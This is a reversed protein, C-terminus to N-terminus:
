EYRLAEIPDMRAAKRAPYYGFFVGVAMSFGVAMLIASVSPRAPFGLLSAGLGGLGMGVGIGILGGILCIVVAEIIFQVMIARQTAGLAMRTGIERTRETISVLMINMVGIGGVLLSIAAIASVAIKVTNLMETYTEAMSSLSFATIEFNPNRRYYSNLFAQVDAAFRDPNTVEPTAMITVGGYGKQGRERNIVEAPVYVDTVTDADKGMSFNMMNMEYKYVGVITVALTTNGARLTLQKGIPSQKGYLNAAFKDSVVAVKRCHAEDNASVARGETMEINQVSFYDSNVGYANFYAYNKGNYAKGSGGPVSLAMAAIKQPYQERLASLMDKTIYDSESPRTQTATEKTNLLVNINSVGFGQMSSQMYGTLSDGITVIGIVSGIGIIIGLMTLVARMKNSWLSGLAMRINETLAM